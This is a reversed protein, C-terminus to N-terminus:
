RIKRWIRHVCIRGRTQYNNRMESSKLLQFAGAKLRPNWKKEVSVEKFTKKKKLSTWTMSRSTIVESTHASFSLFLCSFLQSFFCIFFVLHHTHIYTHIIYLAGSIQTIGENILKVVTIM